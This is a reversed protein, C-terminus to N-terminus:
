QPDQLWTRLNAASFQPAAQGIERDNAKALELYADNAVVEDPHDLYSFCYRLLRSRDRADLALIGQLYEVVAPSKVPVGQYPDLQDKKDKNQYVDCFILFKPPNRPDVPVYRPLEIVKKDGLYPDSKLVREISFDTVGTDSLDNSGTLRPNALTGYLVMKARAAYLRFTQAQQPSGGSCLLCAPAPSPGALLGVLAALAIQLRPSVPVFRSWSTMVM